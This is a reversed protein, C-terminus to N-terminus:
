KGLWRIGDSNRRIRHLDNKELNTPYLLFRLKGLEGFRSMSAQVTAVLAGCYASWATRKRVRGVAQAAEEFGASALAQQVLRLGPYRALDLGSPLVLLRAVLTWGSL